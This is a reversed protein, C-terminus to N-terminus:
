TPSRMRICGHSAASGISGVADTGHIGAGGNFAMWRAKIPNDPGPPIVRGALSGAWASNPVYWSPNTQKWQIDYLGAPTELGQMGVAIPYARALKLHRYFRLTFADRDIVIYAPYKVRLRATTVKPRERVLTARVTRRRDARALARALAARLQPRSVRVGTRSSVLRLGQAGPHVAANRVPREVAAAVRRTLRELAGHSYSVDLPVDTHVATGALGHITRTLISGDRSITVARAVLRAVDVRARIRAAPLIFRRTGARVVLPKALPSRLARGVRARAQEAHLGGVPIGGIRVGPAILQRRSHDYTAVAVGAGVVLLGALVVPILLVSRMADRQAGFGRSWHAGVSM